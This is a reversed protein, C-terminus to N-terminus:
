KIVHHFYVWEGNHKTMDYEEGDLEVAFFEMKLGEKSVESEQWIVNGEEFIEECIRKEIENMM